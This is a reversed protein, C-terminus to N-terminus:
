EVAGKEKFKERYKKNLRSKAESQIKKVAEVYDTDNKDRTLSARAMNLLNIYDKVYQTYESPNM